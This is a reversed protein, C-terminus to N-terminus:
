VPRWGGAGQEYIRSPAKYAKKKEYVIAYGPLLVAHWTGGLADITSPSCTTSPCGDQPVTVTTALLHPHPKSHKGGVTEYRLLFRSV